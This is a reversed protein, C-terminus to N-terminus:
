MCKHTDHIFYSIKSIGYKGLAREYLGEQGPIEQIVVKM